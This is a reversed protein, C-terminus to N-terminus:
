IVPSRCKKNTKMYTDAEAASQTMLPKWDIM